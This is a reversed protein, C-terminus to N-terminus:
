SANVKSVVAVENWERYLSKCSTYLLKHTHLPMLADRLIICKSINMNVVQQRLEWYIELAM